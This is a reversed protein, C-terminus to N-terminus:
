KKNEASILDISQVDLSPDDFTLGAQQKVFLFDASELVYLLSVFAIRICSSRSHLNLLGALDL